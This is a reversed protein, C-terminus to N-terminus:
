PAIQVGADGRVAGPQFRHLDSARRTTTPGILQHSRGGFRVPNVRHVATYFPREGGPKAFLDRIDPTNDVPVSLLPTPAMAGAVM